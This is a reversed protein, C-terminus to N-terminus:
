SRTSWDGEHFLRICEAHLDPDICAVVGDVNEAENRPKSYDLEKGYKDTLKGGLALLLADPAAVDWRSTGGKPFFWLAECQYQLILRMSKEGAGSIHMPEPHLLGQEGLYICFDKVLGESRSSSIVARPLDKQKSLPTPVLRKGGAVYVANLLPGGYLAACGTDLINSLGTYGFPKGVVGFYPKNDLCIGILISVSDYEGNAYSKSGDLPDVIVCIRSSDVFCDDPDEPLTIATVYEAQPALPLKEPLSQIKKSSHLHYLIRIEQSTRQLIQQDLEADADDQSPSVHEEMEESSEEGIIQIDKSVSQIAKVIHGQAVFDADTVFSGDQKLRTNKDETLKLIARSATVSCAVCASALDLLNVRSSSTAM